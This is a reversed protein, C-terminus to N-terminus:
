QYSKLWATLKPVRIERANKALISVLLYEPKGFTKIIVRFLKEDLDPHNKLICEVDYLDYKKLEKGRGALLKLIVLLERPVCRIPHGDKGRYVWAAKELEPTLRFTFADEWGAPQVVSRLIVDFTMKGTKGHAALSHFVPKKTNMGFKLELAKELEERLEEPAMFDLDDSFPRDSGMLMAATGGSLLLRGGLKKPLAEMLKWYGGIPKKFDMM